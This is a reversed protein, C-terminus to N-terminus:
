FYVRYLLAPILSFQKAYGISNEENEDYYESLKARANTVNQLTLLIEHTAKPKNFKYSASISVQYIDEINDEYAKEYDWIEGNAQNVALNGQSDRLLPVIKKGGGFFVKANLGLTQNKKKGLNEFEKGALVNVLYNGNYRTNREVGELSRYKSNYLSANILYYYNKAFYRQLSVEVGYNKGTGENVLDVYRFDIGENITAYYSTDVNEVPLNYLHQYYVEVKAIVSEALQRKGGVVFHHAKLLGLDRNPEVISGDSQEVQAFYNHVSEMKSHMGYGAFISNLSNLQWNVALRPELTSENNFLVNMNHIGSVISVEDNVRHKWSIFNRLTSINENFDILTALNPEDGMRLGQNFDYNFLAYKVGM